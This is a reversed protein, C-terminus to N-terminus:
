FRHSCSFALFPTPERRHGRFLLALDGAFAPARCVFLAGRVLPGRVFGAIRAALAPLDAAASASTQDNGALRRRGTHDCIRRRFVTGFSRNSGPFTKSAVFLPLVRLWSRRATARRPPPRGRESRTKLSM